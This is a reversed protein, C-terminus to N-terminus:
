RSRVQTAPGVARLAGQAEDLVYHQVYVRLADAEVDKVTRQALVSPAAGDQAVLWARLSAAGSMVVSFEAPIASPMTQQLAMAMAATMAWTCVSAALRSMDALCQLKLGLPFSRCRV